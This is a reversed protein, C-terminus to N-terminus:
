RLGANFHAGACGHPRHFIVWWLWLQIIFNKVTVVASVVTGRLQSIIEVAIKRASGGGSLGRHTNVLDVDPTAISRIPHIVGIRDAPIAKM